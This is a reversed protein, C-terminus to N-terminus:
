QKGEALTDYILKETTNRTLGDFCEQRLKFGLDTAGFSLNFTHVSGDLYFYFSICPNYNCFTEERDLMCVIQSYLESDFTQSFMM